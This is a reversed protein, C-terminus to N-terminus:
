VDVKREELDKMQKGSWDLAYVLRKYEILITRIPILLCYVWLMAYFPLILLGLIWCVITIM